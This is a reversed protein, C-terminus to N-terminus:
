PTAGADSAPSPSVSAAADNSPTDGQGTTGQTAGSECRNTPKFEFPYQYLATKGPLAAPAKAKFFAIAADDLAKYGTSQILEPAEVKGETTVVVAIVGAGADRPCKADPFPIRDLKETKLDVGEQYRGAVEALRGAGAAQGVGSGNFAYGERIARQRAKLAEALEASIPRQAPTTPTPAASPENTPSASPEAPSPQNSPEPQAVAVESPTPSPFLGGPPPQPPSNEGERKDVPDVNAGELPPETNPPPISIPPGPPVPGPNIGVPGAGPPLPPLTYGNGFSGSSDPPIPPLDSTGQWMGSPPPMLGPSPIDTIGMPPLPPMGPLSTGPLLEGQPALLGGPLSLAGPRFVDPLRAREAASLEVVNVTRPETPTKAESVTVFPLAYFLVGHLGLSILTSLPTSRGLASLLAQPPASLPPAM